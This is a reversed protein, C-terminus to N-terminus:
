GVDATVPTLFGQIYQSRNRTRSGEDLGQVLSRPTERISGPWGPRPKAPRRECSTLSGACFLTGPVLLAPTQGAAEAECELPPGTIALAPGTYRQEGGANGATRCLPGSILARCLATLLAM